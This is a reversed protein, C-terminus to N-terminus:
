KDKQLMMSPFRAVSYPRFLTWCLKFVAGLSYVRYFGSPHFNWGALQAASGSAATPRGDAGYPAPTIILMIMRQSRSTDAALSCSINLTLWRRTALATRSLWCLTNTRLRVVSFPTFTADETPKCLSSATVGRYVTGWGCDEVEIRM